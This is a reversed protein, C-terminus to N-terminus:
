SGACLRISLGHITVGGRDEVLQVRVIGPAV